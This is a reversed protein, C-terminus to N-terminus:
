WIDSRTWSLGPTKVYSASNLPPIFLIQHFLKMMFHIMVPQSIVHSIISDNITDGATEYFTANKNINTLEKPILGNGKHAIFTKM